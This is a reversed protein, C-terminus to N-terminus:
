QYYTVDVTAGATQGIFQFKPLAGTYIFAQGAAVPNGIASTPATGDDRWRIGSSEVYVLVVTTGAPIGTTGTAPASSSISVASSTSVSTFQQYGLPIELRYQPDAFVPAIAFSLALCLAGLFRTIKM